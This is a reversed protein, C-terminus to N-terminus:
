QFMLETSEKLNIVLFFRSKLFSSLESKHSYKGILLVTNIKHHLKTIQLKTIKKIKYNQLKQSKYNQSKSLDM